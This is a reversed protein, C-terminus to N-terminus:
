CAALLKLLKEKYEEEPILGATYLDYLIEEANHIGAQRAIEKLAEEQANKALFM